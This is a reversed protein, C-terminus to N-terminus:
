PSNFSECDVNLRFELEEIRRQMAALVSSNTPPDFDLRVKLYVYTKVAQCRNPDKNFDSWRQFMDTIVFGETPGVGLQKLNMFAANIHMIIDNDFYEYEISLGLLKKISVLISELQVDGETPVSDFIDAM